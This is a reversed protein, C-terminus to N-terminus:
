ARGTRQPIRCGLLALVVDVTLNQVAGVLPDSTTAVEVGRCGSLQPRQDILGPANPAFRIVADPLHPGDAAREGVRNRQAVDGHVAARAQGIM